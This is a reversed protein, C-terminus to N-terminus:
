APGSPGPTHSNVALLARLDALFREANIRGAALQQECLRLNERVYEPLSTRSALTEIASGGGGVKQILDAVAMAVIGASGLTILIGSLIQVKMKVDFITSSLGFEASAVEIQIFIFIPYTLAMCQMLIKGARAVGRGQSARFTHIISLVITAIWSSLLILGYVMTIIATPGMAKEPPEESPKEPAVSGVIVAIYLFFLVTALLMLAPAGTAIKSARGGSRFAASYLGGFLFGLAIVAIGFVKMSEPERTAPVVGGLPDEAAGVDSRESLGERSLWMVDLREVLSVNEVLLFGLLLLLLVRVKGRAFLASIVALVSLVLGTILFFTKDAKDREDEKLSKDGDEWEGFTIAGYTVYALAVVAALLIVSVMIRTDM